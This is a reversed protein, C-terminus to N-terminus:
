KMQRRVSNTISHHVSTGKKSTCFYPLSTDGTSCRNFRWMRCVVGGGGDQKGEGRDGEGQGEGEGRGAGLTIAAQSFYVM